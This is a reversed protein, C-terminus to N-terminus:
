ITITHASHRPAIAVPDACTNETLALWSLPEAESAWYETIPNPEAIFSSDRLELAAATGIHDGVGFGLGEGDGNGDGDGGALPSLIIGQQAVAFSVLQDPKGVM